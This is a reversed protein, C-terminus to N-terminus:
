KQLQERECLEHQQNGQCIMIRSQFTENWDKSKVGQEDEVMFYNEDRMVM